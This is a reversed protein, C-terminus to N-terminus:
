LFTGSDAKGPSGGFLCLPDWTGVFVFTVGVM